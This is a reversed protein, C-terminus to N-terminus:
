SIVHAGTLVIFGDYGSSNNYVRANLTWGSPLGYTTFDPLAIIDSYLNDTCPIAVRYIDYYDTGNNIQIAFSILETGTGANVIGDLTLKPSYLYPWINSPGPVGNSFVNESLTNGVGNGAVAVRGVSGIFSNPKYQGAMANPQAIEVTPTNAIVVSPENVVNVSSPVGYSASSVHSNIPPYNSALLSLGSPIGSSSTWQLTLTPREAPPFMVDLDIGPVMQQVLNIRGAAFTLQLPSPATSYALNIESFLAAIPTFRGVDIGLAGFDVVLPTTDTPLPIAIWAARESGYGHDVKGGLSHYSYPM